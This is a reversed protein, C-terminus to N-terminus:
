DTPHGDVTSDGRQLLLPRRLTPRTHRTFTLFSHLAIYLSLARQHDTLKMPLAVVSRRWVLDMTTAGLPTLVIHLPQSATGPKTMRLPPYASFKGLQGDFPHQYKQIRRHRCCPCFSLHLRLARRQRKQAQGIYSTVVSIQVDDYHRREM